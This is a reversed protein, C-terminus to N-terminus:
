NNTLVKYVQDVDVFSPLCDSAQKLTAKLLKKTSLMFTVDAANDLLNDLVNENWGLLVGVEDKALTRM